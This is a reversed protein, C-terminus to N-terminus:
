EFGKCDYGRLEQLTELKQMRLTLFPLRYADIYVIKKKRQEARAENRKEFYEDLHNGKVIDNLSYYNIKERKDRNVFLLRCVKNAKLNYSGPMRVVRAPDQVKPDVELLGDAFLIEGYKRILLRQIDKMFSIAKQSGDVNAISREFIYYVGLGRGTATMMTPLLLEKNDVAKGLIEKTKYIADELAKGEYSHGDLDIYIGSYNWVDESLRKYGKFSNLSVYANKNPNLYM